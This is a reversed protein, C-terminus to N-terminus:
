GQDVLKTHIRLRTRYRDAFRFHQEDDGFPLVEYVFTNGAADTETIRDGRDPLVEVGDLVYDAANILYDRSERMSVIGFELSTPHETRGVTAAVGPTEEPGRAITVSQAVDGQLTENLWDTADQILDSM